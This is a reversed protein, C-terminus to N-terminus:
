GLVEGLDVRERQGPTLKWPHQPKFTDTDRVGGKGWLVCM